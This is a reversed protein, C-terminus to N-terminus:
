GGSRMGNGEPLCIVCLSGVGCDNIIGGELSSYEDSSMIKPIWIGCGWGLRTCGRIRGEGELQSLGQNNGLRYLCCLTIM